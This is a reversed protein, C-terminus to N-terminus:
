DRRRRAIAGAVGLGALLLAWSQPEPVAATIRLNDIGVVEIPGNGSELNITASTLAALISPLAPGFTAADLQVTYRIWDAAPHNSPVFDFSVSGAASTLTLLGFSPWSPLDGNLSRGDFSLKGGLYSSWDATAGGLPIVLLMDENDIDAVSLYGNDDEVVHTLVGGSTVTVGQADGHFSYRLDAAHSAGTSLALALALGVATIPTTALPIRIM